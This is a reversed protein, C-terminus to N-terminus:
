AEKFTIVGDADTKFSANPAAVERLELSHQRPHNRTTEGEDTLYFFDSPQEPKPLELKRDATINVKDVSGHNNRTAPAVKIKLTLSGGRGTNQVTRLLEALDSTLAAHASGENLEALLINFSKM